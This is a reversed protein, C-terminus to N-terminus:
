LFRHLRQLLKLGLTVLILAHFLDVHMNRTGERCKKVWM